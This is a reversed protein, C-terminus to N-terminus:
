DVIFTDVSTDVTGDENYAPVGTESGYIKEANEYVLKYDAM